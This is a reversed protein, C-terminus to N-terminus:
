SGEVCIDCLHEKELRVVKNIDSTGFVVEDHSSVEWVKGIHEPVINEEVSINVEVADVCSVIGEVGVSVVGLGDPVDVDHDVMHAITWFGAFADLCM